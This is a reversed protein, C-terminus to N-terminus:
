PQHVGLGEGSCLLPRLLCTESRNRTRGSAPQQFYCTASFPGWSREQTSLIRLTGIINEFPPLAPSTKGNALIWIFPRVAGRLATPVEEPEKEGAAEGHTLRADRRAHPPLTLHIVKKLLRVVALLKCIATKM